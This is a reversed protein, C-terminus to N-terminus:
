LVYIMSRDYVGVEKQLKLHSRTVKQDMAEDTTPWSLSLTNLSRDSGRSKLMIETGLFRSHTNIVM